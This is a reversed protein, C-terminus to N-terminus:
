DVGYIQIADIKDYAIGLKETITGGDFKTVEAFDPVEGDELTKGSKKAKWEDFVQFANDYTMTYVISKGSGLIFVVKLLKKDQAM